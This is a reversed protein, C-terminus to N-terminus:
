REVKTSGIKIGAVVFDLNEYFNMSIIEVASQIDSSMEDDEKNKNEKNSEKKKKKLSFLNQSM